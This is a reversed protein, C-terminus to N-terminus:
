CSQLKFKSVELSCDLMLAVVCPVEEPIFIYKINMMSLPRQELLTLPWYILIDNEKNKKELVKTKLLNVGSTHSNKVRGRDLLLYEMYKLFFFFWSILLNCCQSIANTTIIGASQGKFCITPLLNLLHGNSLVPYSVKDAIWSKLLLFVAGREIKRPTM